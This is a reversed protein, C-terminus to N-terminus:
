TEAPITSLNVKITKTVACPEPNKAQPQHKEGCANLIKKAQIAVEKDHQVQKLVGDVSVLEFTFLGHLALRYVTRRSASVLEAHGCKKDEPCKHQFCWGCASFNRHM